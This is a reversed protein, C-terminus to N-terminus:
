DKIGRGEPRPEENKKRKKIVLGMSSPNERRKKKKPKLRKKITSALNYAAGKIENEVYKWETEGKENMTEKLFPREKKSRIDSFIQFYGVFLIIVPILVVAISYTPSFVEHINEGVLSSVLKLIRFIFELVFVGGAANFLPYILNIPFLFISFLEAFVLLTSIVILLLLNTNLFNVVAETAFHDYNRIVINAIGLLIVFVLIGLLGTILIRRPTQEVM